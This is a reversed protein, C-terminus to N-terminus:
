RAGPVRVEKRKRFRGHEKKGRQGPFEGKRVRGAKRGREIGAKM